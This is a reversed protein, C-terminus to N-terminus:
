ASFDLTNEVRPLEPDVQATRVVKVIFPLAFGERLIHGEGEPEGM